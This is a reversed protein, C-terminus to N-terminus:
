HKTGASQIKYLAAIKPLLALIYSQGTQATTEQYSENNLLSNSVVRVSLFPIKYIQAVQASAAGEMEEGLIDYKQSFWSIYDVENSWRDSSLIAGVKVRYGKVELDHNAALVVQNIPPTFYTPMYDRSEDIQKFFVGSGAPLNPATVASANIIKNAIVIDDRHLLRPYGGILGQNIILDPTFSRIAVTTAVGANIEGINTKSIIVPVGELDGLWFQFGDINQQVVNQLKQIYEQLEVDM